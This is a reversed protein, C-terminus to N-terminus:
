NLLFNFLFKIKLNNNKFFFSLIEKATLLRKLEQLILM